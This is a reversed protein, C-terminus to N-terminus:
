RTSNHHQLSVESISSSAIAGSAKEDEEGLEM